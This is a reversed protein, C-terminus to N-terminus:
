ALTSGILYRTASVYPMGFLAPFQARMAPLAAQVEALIGAPLVMEGVRAMTPLAHIACGIAGADDLREYALEFPGHNILAQLNRRVTLLKACELTAPDIGDHDVRVAETLAHQGFVLRPQLGTFRKQVFPAAGALEQEIRRAVAVELTGFRPQDEPPHMVIWLRRVHSAYLMPHEPRFTWGCAACTKQEFTGDLIDTVQADITDADVSSFLAQSWTAQCSPCTVSAPALQSM